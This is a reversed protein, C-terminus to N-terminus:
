PSKVNTDDYKFDYTLTPKIYKVRSKGKITNIGVESNEQKDIVTNINETSSSNNRLNKSISPQDFHNQSFDTNVRNLLNLLVEYNFILIACLVVFMLIFIISHFLNAKKVKNSKFRITQKINWSSIKLSESKHYITEIDMEKDIMKSLLEQKEKKLLNLEAEILKFKDANFSSDSSIISNFDFLSSKLLYTLLVVHKSNSKIITNNSFNVENQVNYSLSELFLLVKDAILESTNSLFCSTELSSDNSVKLSDGVSLRQENKSICVLSFLDHVYYYFSFNEEDYQVIFFNYNHSTAGNSVRNTKSYNSKLIKVSLDSFDGPQDSFDCAVEFNQIIAIYLLM